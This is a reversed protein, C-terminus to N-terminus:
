VYPIYWWLPIWRSQPHIYWQLLMHLLWHQQSLTSWMWGSWYCVRWCRFVFCMLKAYHNVIIVMYPSTPKGSCTSSDNNLQYGNFCSCHFSGPTNNCVHQCEHTGEACEDTDIIFTFLEFINIGGLSFKLPSKTLEGNCSKGNPDLLFGSSCGCIYSGDTNKCDQDCEDVQERCEDVDTHMTTM